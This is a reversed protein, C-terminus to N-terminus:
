QRKLIHCVVSDLKQTFIRAGSPNLHNRDMFHTHDFLDSESEMDFIIVHEDIKRIESLISDRQALIKPYLERISSGYVPFKCIVITKRDRVMEEVISYFLEVNETLLPDNDELPVPYKLSDIKNPDYELERHLDKRRYTAFGYENLTDVPNALLFQDLMQRKFYGPASNFLLYDYFRTKRSRISLGYYNLFLSNKWLAYHQHPVHLHAFSLDLVIVKLNPLRRKLAEYIKIDTNHHQFAEALNLTPSTMWKPNLGTEMQSTGLGLVEISEAKADLQRSIIKFRTEVARAGVELLSYGMIVPLLFLSM